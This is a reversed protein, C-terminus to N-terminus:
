NIPESSRRLSPAPQTKLSKEDNGKQLGGFYPQPPLSIVGEHVVVKGKSSCALEIMYKVKVFITKMTM